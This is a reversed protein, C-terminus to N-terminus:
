CLERYDFDDNLHEVTDEDSWGGIVIPQTQILDLRFFSLFCTPWKNLRRFCLHFQQVVVEAIFRLSFVCENSVDNGNSKRGNSHSTRDPEGIYVPFPIMCRLRADRKSQRVVVADTPTLLM